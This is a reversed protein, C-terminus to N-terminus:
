RLPATRITNDNNDQLTMTGRLNTVSGATATCAFAVNHSVGKSVSCFEGAALKGACGNNVNTLADGSEDLLKVTVTVSTTGGNYIICFALTQAASGYIAPSAIQAADATGTFAAICALASLAVAARM